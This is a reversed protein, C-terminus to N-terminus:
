IFISCLFKYCLRLWLWHFSLLQKALKINFAFFKINFVDVLEDLLTLKENKEWTQKWYHSPLLHDEFGIMIRTSWTVVNLELGIGPGLISSEIVFIPLPQFHNATTVFLKTKFTVPSRYIQSQFVYIFKSEDLLTNWRSNVHEFDAYFVSSCFTM